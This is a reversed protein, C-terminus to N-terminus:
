GDLLHRDASLERDRGIRLARTAHRAAKYYDRALRFRAQDQDLVARRRYWAAALHIGPELAEEIGMRARLM